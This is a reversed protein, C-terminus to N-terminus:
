FDQKSQELAAQQRVQETTLTSKATTEATGLQAARAQQQTLLDAERQQASQEVATRQTDAQQQIAGMGQEGAQVARPLAALNEIHHIGGGLIASPLTAQPGGLVRGAVGAGTAAQRATGPQLFRGVLPLERFAPLAEGVSSLGKGVGGAIAMFGVNKAYDDLAEHATDAVSKPPTTRRHGWDSIHQRINEAQVSGLTMPIAAGAAGGLLAGAPITIPAAPGGLAGLAGGIEAGVEGFAPTAAAM